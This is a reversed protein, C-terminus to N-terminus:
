DKLILNTVYKIYLEKYEKVFPYALMFKVIDEISNFLQNQLETATLNHPKEHNCGFYFYDSNRMQYLEAIEKAKLGGKVCRILDEQNNLNFIYDVGDTEDEQMRNYANFILCRDKQFNEKIRKTLEKILQEM